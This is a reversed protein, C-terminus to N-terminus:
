QIPIGFVKELREQSCTIANKNSFSKRPVIKISNDIGTEEIKYM